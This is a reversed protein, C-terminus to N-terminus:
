KYVYSYVSTGYKKILEDLKARDNTPAFDALMGNGLYRGTQDSSFSASDGIEYMPKRGSTIIAKTGTNMRWIEITGNGDELVNFHQNKGTKLSIRGIPLISITRSNRM